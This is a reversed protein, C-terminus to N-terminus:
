NRSPRCLRAEEHQVNAEVWAHGTLIADLVLHLFERQEEEERLLHRVADVIRAATVPARDNVFRQRSM